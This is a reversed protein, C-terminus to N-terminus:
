WNWATSPSPTAFQTSSRCTYSELLAYFRGHRHRSHARAPLGVTLNLISFSARAPLLQPHFIFIEQGAQARTIVASRGVESGTGATTPIAIHPELDRRSGRSPGATSPTWVGTIDGDHRAMAVVAKSVDLASGRRWGPRHSRRLRGRSLRAASQVVDDEIPAM